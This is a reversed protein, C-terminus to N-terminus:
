SSSAWVGSSAETGIGAMGGEAPEGFVHTCLWSIPEHNCLHMRTERFLQSHFRPTRSQTVAERGVLSTRGLNAVARVKAGHTEPGMIGAPATGNGWLRISTPKSLKENNLCETSAKLFMYSLSTEDEGSLVCVIRERGSGHDWGMPLLRSGM